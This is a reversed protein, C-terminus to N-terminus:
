HFHLNIISIVMNIMYNLFVNKIARERLEQTQEKSLYENDIRELLGCGFQTYANILTFNPYDYYAFSGLKNPDGLKTNYDVEYAHPFMTRVQNAIGAGMTKFCNCGHIVIDYDSTQKMLDGKIYKIM